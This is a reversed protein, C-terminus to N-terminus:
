FTESFVGSFMCYKGSVRPVHLIKMLSWYGKRFSAEVVPSTPSTLDYSIGYNKIVCTLERSDNM